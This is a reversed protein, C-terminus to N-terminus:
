GDVASRLMAAVQELPAGKEVFAYAGAELVARRDRPDAVGSHMVIPADPHIARLKRCVAPGGVGDALVWDLLIVDPRSEVAHRYAAEADSVAAVDFCLQELAHELALRLASDEEVILLSTRETQPAAGAPPMDDLEALLAGVVGPDLQTGAAATLEATAAAHSMARRYPRDSTMAHYADCALIVRSALPIDEGVFGDPYGRGDWREHEARVAPALHALSAISGVIKAGIAPHERMRRWEEEDLPGAKLLISDPVGIKGIDHLLAVQEIRTVEDDGLELRRAVAGALQVVAESHEGTYDDRADLAALLARVGTLEGHLRRNEQALERQDILDGILRACVHAFQAATDDLESDPARSACCLSGYLRGDAYRVPVGVYCGIEATCTADLVATIPEAATDAVVAPLEGEVMPRCYSAELPVEDGRHIDPHEPGADVSRIIQTEGVFESLYAIEMRLHRRLLAVIREASDAASRRIAPAAPAERPRPARARLATRAAEVLESRTGGDHPWTASATAAAAPPRTAAWAAAIREALAEAQEATAEPVVLALEDPGARFATAGDHACRAVVAALRALLGDEGDEARVDAADVLVLACTGGEREARGLEADLVGHLERRTLLGTVPDQRALAELDEAYRRVERQARKRDSIDRAITSIEVVQGADDRVPSVTLAVDLVTGDRCVRQTEFDELREGALVRAVLATEEGPRDPPVLMGSSRGIAQHATYGYLREAGANWSTIRGGRDETMVADSTSAVVAALRRAQAEAEARDSVDVDTGIVRQPRGAGDRVVTARGHLTRLAGGPHRIRFDLDFEREGALAARMANRVRARDSPHVLEGALEPTVPTGRELGFIDYLSDSYTVRGEDLDWEWSGLRATREVAERALTRETVDRLFAAFMWGRGVRLPSITLEVPFERGDRHLAPLEVRRGVIRSDGGALYRRMGQEHAARLREPVITQGLPRGVAEEKSWGFLLEAARNWDRVLGQEDIAVYADRSTDLVLRLLADHAPGTPAHALDEYVATAGRVAGRADFCPHASVAVPVPRGDSARRVTETRSVTKGCLARHLPMAAVDSRDHLLREVDAGVIEGPAYGFLREAGPSWGVVIGECDVEVVAPAAAVTRAATMQRFTDDRRMRTKGDSEDAANV